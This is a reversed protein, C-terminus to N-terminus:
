KPINLSGKKAATGTNVMSTELPIRLASTGSSAQQLAQRQSTRKQMKGSDADTGSSAVPPPLPAAPEPMPPPAPPAPMPEPAPPPPPPSPISPASGCM